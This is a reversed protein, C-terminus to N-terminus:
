SLHLKRELRVLKRVLKQPEEQSAIYTSREM